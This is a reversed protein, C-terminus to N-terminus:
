FWFLLHFLSFLDFFIFCILNILREFLLFDCRTKFMLMQAMKFWYSLVNKMDMQHVMIYLHGYMRFDFHFLSFSFFIFVIFNILREFFLCFHCMTQLIFMQVRKFWYNLVNKVDKQHLLIFLHVKSSFLLFSSLLSFIFLLIHCCILNILEKLFCIFCIFFWM